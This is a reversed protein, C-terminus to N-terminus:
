LDSSELDSITFTSSPDHLITSLEFTDSDDEPYGCTFTSHATPLFGSVEDGGHPTDEDDQSDSGRDGHSSDNHCSNNTDEHFRRRTAMFSETDQPAFPHEARATAANEVGPRLSEAMKVEKGENNRTAEDSGAAPITLAIVTDQSVGVASAAGPEDKLVGETTEADMQDVLTERAEADLENKVVVGVDELSDGDWSTNTSAEKTADASRPVKRTSTGVEHTNSGITSPNSAAHESDECSQNLDTAADYNDLSNDVPIAEASMISIFTVTDSANSVQPRLYNGNHDVPIHNQFVSATGDTSVPWMGCHDPAAATDQDAGWCARATVTTKVPGNNSPGDADYTSCAVHCVDPSADFADLNEEFVDGSTGCAVSCTEKGDKGVDGRCPPHLTVDREQIANDTNANVNIDGDTEKADKGVDDRCTAHLSVDHEQIADDTNANVNIDGDSIVERVATDSLVSEHALCIARRLAANVDPHLDQQARLYLLASSIQADGAPSSTMVESSSDPSPCKKHKVAELLTM